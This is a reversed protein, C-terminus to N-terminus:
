KKSVLWRKRGNHTSRAKLRGRDCHTSYTPPLWKQTPIRPRLQACAYRTPHLVDDRVPYGVNRAVFM